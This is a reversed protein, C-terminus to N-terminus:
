SEAAPHDHKRLTIAMDASMREHPLIGEVHNNVYAICPAPVFSPPVKVLDSRDFLYLDSINAYVIDVCVGYDSLAENIVTVMIRTPVGDGTNYLDFINSSLDHIGFQYGIVKSVARYLCSNPKM